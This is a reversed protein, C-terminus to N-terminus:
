TGERVLDNCESTNLLERILAKAIQVLQYTREVNTDRLKM